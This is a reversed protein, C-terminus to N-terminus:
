LYGLFLNHSLFALSLVILGGGPTSGALLWEEHHVAQKGEPRLPMPLNKKGAHICAAHAIRPTSSYFYQGSIYASFDFIKILFTL